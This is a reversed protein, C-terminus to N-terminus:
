LDMKKENLTDRWLTLAEQMETDEPYVSLYEEMLPIAKDLQNLQSYASAALLAIAKDSPFFAYASKFEDAAEQYKGVKYAAQANQLQKKAHILPRNKPDLSAFLGSDTKTQVTRSPIAAFSGPKQVAVFKKKSSSNYSVASIGTGPIGVSTYTGRSNVGVRAGRVGASLGLGGKSVNLKLGPLIKFSKRFRFAM